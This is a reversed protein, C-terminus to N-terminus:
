TPARKKNVIGGSATLVVTKADDDFAFSSMRYQPLDSDIIVVEGNNAPVRKVWDQSAEDKEFTYIAQHTQYSHQDLCAALVVIRKGDKSVKAATGTGGMVCDENPDRVVLNTTVSDGDDDGGEGVTIQRYTENTWCGARTFSSWQCLVM